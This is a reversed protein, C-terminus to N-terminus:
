VKQGFTGHINWAKEKVDNIPDIHKIDRVSITKYDKTAPVCDVTFDVLFHQSSEEYDSAIVNVISPNDNYTAIIVLTHGINHNPIHVHQVMNFMDLTDAFQKAYTVDMETHINVDGAFIISDRTSVLLELLRIIEELFIVISIFLLRYVCVLTVIEMGEMSFQVQICEFSSYTESKMKKFKMNLRVLIGVGGGTEKDRGKRRNHILKYGYDKVLATM